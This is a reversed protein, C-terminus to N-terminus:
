ARHEIAPQIDINPLVIEIPGFEIALDSWQKITEAVVQGAASEQWRQSRSDWVAQWSTEINEM